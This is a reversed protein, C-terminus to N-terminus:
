ARDGRVDLYAFAVFSLRRSLPTYAVILAQSGTLGGGRGVGEVGGEHRAM